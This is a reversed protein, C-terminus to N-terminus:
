GTQIRFLNDHGPVIEDAVELIEQFSEQAAEVDHSKEFVRGKEYHDRTVIADGAIVGTQTAAALLLGASGPTPGPCPFLHVRRTIQEEAAEFRRLMEREQEIMRAVMADDDLESEESQEALRDLHEQMAEMEPEHMLWSAGSFVALGNRHAPRFTTVFVADIQEPTLGTREDLRYALIEGPLGPDVLITTTDDRILTTTAYATRKQENENWL